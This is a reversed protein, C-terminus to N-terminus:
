PSTASVAYRRASSWSVLIRAGGPGEAGEPVGRGARGAGDVVANVAGKVLGGDVAAATAQSLFNAVDDWTMQQSRSADEEGAHWGTGAGGPSAEGGSAGRHHLCQELPSEGTSAFGKDGSAQPTGSVSAEDGGEGGGRSKPPRPSPKGNVSAPPFETSRAAGGGQMQAAQSARGNGDHVVGGAAASKGKMGGIKGNAPPKGNM